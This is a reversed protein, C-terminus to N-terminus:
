LICPRARRVQPPAALAAGAAVLAALMARRDPQATEQQQQARHTSARPLALVRSSHTASGQRQAAGSSCATSRMAAQMTAATGSRAISPAPSASPAGARWGLM